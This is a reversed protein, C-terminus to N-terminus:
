FPRINQHDSTTKHWKSRTKKVHARVCGSFLTAKIANKSTRGEWDALVISYVYRVLLWAAASPILYTFHWLASSISQISNVISHAACQIPLINHMMQLQLVIIWCPLPRSKADQPTHDGQGVLNAVSIPQGNNGHYRFNPIRWRVIFNNYPRRCFSQVSVTNSLVCSIKNLCHRNEFIVNNTM